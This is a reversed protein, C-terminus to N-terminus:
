DDKPWVNVVLGEPNEDEDYKVTTGFEALEIEEAQEDGVDCVVELDGEAQKIEELVKVIESIRM